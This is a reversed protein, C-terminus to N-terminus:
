LLGRLLNNFANFRVNQVLTNAENTIEITRMTMPIQRNTALSESASLRSVICVAIISWDAPPANNTIPKRRQKINGPQKTKNLRKFSLFFQQPKWYHHM